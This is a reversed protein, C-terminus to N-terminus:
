ILSQMKYLTLINNFKDKNELLFPKSCLISISQVNNNIIVTFFNNLELNSNLWDKIQILMNSLIEKNITEPTFYISTELSSENHYYFVPIVPKFNRLASEFIYDEIAFIDALLILKKNKELM